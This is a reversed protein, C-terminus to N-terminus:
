ASSKLAAQVRAQRCARRQSKGRLRHLCGREVHQSSACSGDGKRRAGQVRRRGELGRQSGDCSLLSTARTQSAGRCEKAENHALVRILSWGIAETESGNLLLGNALSGLLRLGGVALVMGMM